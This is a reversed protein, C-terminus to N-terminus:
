REGHFKDTHDLSILWNPPYIAANVPGDKAM